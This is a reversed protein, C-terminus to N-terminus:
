GAGRRMSLIEGGREPTIMKALVPDAFLVVPAIHDESVPRWLEMAKRLEPWMEDVEAPDSGVREIVRHVAADFEPNGFTLRFGPQSLRERYEDLLPQLAGGADNRQLQSLTFCEGRHHLRDEVFLLPLLESAFLPDRSLAARDAAFLVVDNLSADYWNGLMALLQFRLVTARERGFRRAQEWVALPADVEGRLAALRAREVKDDWDDRTRGPPKRLGHFAVYQEDMLHRFSDHRQPGEGSWSALWYAAWEGNEDVDEPDLFMVAADGELSVRLSRGIIDADDVEGEEAYGSYAEIWSADDTDRLWALETTGALRYIFDGADRWGNTVLLFERLSPPLPRGLRAETAEVDVPGAPAFGLWGDRVVDEDLPEDREPDHAAIWEASWLKLFPRWEARDM